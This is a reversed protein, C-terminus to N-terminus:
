FEEHTLRIDDFQVKAYNLAIRIPEAPGAVDFFYLKM